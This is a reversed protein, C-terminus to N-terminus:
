VLSNFLKLFSNRAISASNVTILANRDVDVLNHVIKYMMVLDYILRRYELSDLGLFELRNRYSLHSVSAIRKTFRRQVREIKAINCVDNPSWIYTNYELLPRVYTTFAKVLLESNRSSFGKFILFSRSFAKSICENIYESFRLNKSVTIGLDVAHDVRSLVDSNFAYDSYVCNRGIRFVNCKNINVKLQWVNSWLILNSLSAQLDHSIGNFDVSAYLKIDDAYLKCTTNGVITDCVDNIFIIFLIPGLVSGQPVGSIVKVTSSYFGDICIYQYRDSLFNEIWSLLNGHIGYSVLKCLLKRHVVSDFAKAFDIYIVDLSQKNEINLTWDNFCDILQTGTSRRSLFGHQHRSILNKSHLYALIDDKIVSEMIKCCLSTLSIPRYNAVDVSKGKKFIPTVMAIKWEKPVVSSNFLSQYLVALPLALSESAHKLLTAQIGDPGPATCPKLSRLKRLVKSVTFLVSSLREGSGVRCPLTSCSGDDVTFVSAFYNNLLNAKERPDNTISGDARKLCGVGSRSSLKKNVYRYFSGVNNSDILNSELRYTHAHIAKRIAHACERYADCLQKTNFQKLKRWLSSKKSILKRIHIPYACAASKRVHKINTPAFQLIANNLTSSFALWRLDGDANNYYIDSWDINRLYENFCPWDVARYDTFIRDNDQLFVTSCFALKFNVRNHDSTSFPVDVAVDLILFPDNTFVLDLINNKRTAETVHQVLANEQMCGIFNSSPSDTETDPCSWNIHPLNFDGCLVVSADSVCFHDIAKTLLSINNVHSSPACYSLIFRYKIHVGLIDFVLLELNNFASPVDISVCEIGSRIFACVGGGLSSRDKRLLSFYKSDTLLSSSYEPTLWSETVLVVDHSSSYLLHHLEVLKNCLSRANIL